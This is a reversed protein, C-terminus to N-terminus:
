CGVFLLKNVESTKYVTIIQNQVKLYTEILKPDVTAHGNEDIKKINLLLDDSLKLLSRLMLGMRLSPNLSHEEIHRRCTEIDTGPCELHNLQLDRSVDAAMEAIDMSGANEAIFAQAMKADKTQNFRCLWCPDSM